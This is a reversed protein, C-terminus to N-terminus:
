GAPIVFGDAKKGEKTIWEITTGPGQSGTTTLVLRRREGKRNIRKTSKRVMEISNMESASSPGLATSSTLISVFEPKPWVTETKGVGRGLSKKAAARTKLISVESPMVKAAKAHSM